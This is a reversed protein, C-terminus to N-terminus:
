SMPMTTRVHQASEHRVLQKQWRSLFPLHSQPSPPGESPWKILLGNVEFIKVLVGDVSDDIEEDDVGDELLEHGDVRGYQANAAGPQNYRPDASGLGWHGPRVEEGCVYGTVFNIM